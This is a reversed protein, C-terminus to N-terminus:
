AGTSATMVLVQYGKYRVEELPKFGHRTYLGGSLHETQLYLREIGAAKARSLVENVLLSAVGKGRGKEDVYVGSLWYEYEPYIDMERIKLEAAGIVEDDERALVLMPASERSVLTSVRAVVRELTMGPVASAWEDFYWQAVKGIAEPHDALLAIEM